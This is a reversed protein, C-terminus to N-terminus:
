CGEIWESGAKCRLCRPAKRTNGHRIFLLSARSSAQPKGKPDLWLFKRPVRFEFGAAVLETLWRDVSNIMVVTKGKEAEAIAKRAWATRSSTPGVFPPNVWTSGGWEEKLGDFGAPRPFPCADFDFHFEADLEAMLDPPTLWYGVRDGNGPLLGTQLKPRAKSALAALIPSPHGQEILGRLPGAQAATEGKPTEYERSM